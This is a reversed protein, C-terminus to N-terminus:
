QKTITASAPQSPGAGGGSATANNSLSAVGLNAETITYNTTCTLTANPALSADAAGCNFPAAGILGDTVTFQAPGLNGTGSNKIVYTFAITQGAQNYTTPNATTTLTLLTVSKTVTTSASQSPGAGGGSATASNSLSAAGLNAETISYNVNCTM